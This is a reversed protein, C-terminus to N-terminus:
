VAPGVHWLSGMSKWHISWRPDFFLAEQTVERALRMCLWRLRAALGKARAHGQPFLDDLYSNEYFKLECEAFVQEAFGRLDREKKIQQLLDLFYVLDNLSEIWGVVKWNGYSEDDFAYAIFHVYGVPIEIQRALEAYDDALERCLDLLLRKMSQRFEARLHVLTSADLLPM